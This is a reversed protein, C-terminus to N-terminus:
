PWTTRIFLDISQSVIARPTWIMKNWKQRWRNIIFEIIAILCSWRSHHTISQYHSDIIHSNDKLSGLLSSKFIIISSLYSNRFKLSRGTSTKTTFTSDVIIDVLCNNWIWYVLCRIIFFFLTLNSEFFLPFSTSRTSCIFCFFLTLYSKLLVFFSLRWM